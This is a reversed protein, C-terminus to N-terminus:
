DRRRKGEVCSVVRSALGQEKVENHSILDEGVGGKGAGGDDTLDLLRVSLPELDDIVVVADDGVLGEVGPSLFGLIDELGVKPDLALAAVDLARVLGDMDVPGGGEKIHTGLCGWVQGGGGV